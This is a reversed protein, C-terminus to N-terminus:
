SELRGAAYLRRAFELRRIEAPEFPYYDPQYGSALLLNWTLLRRQQHATLPRARKRRVRDRITTLDSM